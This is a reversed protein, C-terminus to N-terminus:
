TGGGTGGLPSKGRSRARPRDQAGEVLRFLRRVERGGRSFRGQEVTQFHFTRGRGKVEEEILEIVRNDFRSTQLFLKKDILCSITRAKPHRRRYGHEGVMRAIDKMRVAAV